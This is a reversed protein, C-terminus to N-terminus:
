KKYKKKLNILIEPNDIIKTGLKVEPEILEQLKLGVFANIEHRDKLCEMKSLAETIINEIEESNIFWSFLTDLYEKDIMEYFDTSIEIEKVRKNIM